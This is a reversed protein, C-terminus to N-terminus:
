GKAIHNVEVIMDNWGEAEIMARRRKSKLENLVATRLDAEILDNDREMTDTRKVDYSASYVISYPIHYKSSFEKITM